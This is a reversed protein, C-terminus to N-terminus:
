ATRKWMYCTIYPQLNGSNGTGASSTNGSIRVRDLYHQSDSTDHQWPYFKDSTDSKAAYAVNTGGRGGSIGSKGSRLGFQANFTHTHAAMAKSGGTKEVNNFETETSSVGVPVRGSGWAVWTGGFLSAPNTQSVSMYIAGVPYIKKWYDNLQTQIENIAAEIMESLEVKEKYDSFGHAM